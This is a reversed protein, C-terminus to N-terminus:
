RAQEEILSDTGVADLANKYNSLYRMIQNHKFRCKEYALVFTVAIDTDSSRQGDRAIREKEEARLDPCPSTLDDPLDLTVFRNIILQGRLKEDLPIPALKNLVEVSWRRLEPSSREDNLNQAAIQVYDKNVSLAGSQYGILGSTISAIFGLTAVGITVWGGFYQAKDGDNAM